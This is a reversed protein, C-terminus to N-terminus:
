LDKYQQFGKFKIDNLSKIPMGHFRNLEDPSLSTFAILICITKKRTPPSNFGSFQVSHKGRWIIPLGKALDLADTLCDFEGIKM